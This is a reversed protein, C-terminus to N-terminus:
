VYAKDLCFMTCLFIFETSESLPSFYNLSALIDLRFFIPSWSLSFTKPYTNPTDPGTTVASFIDPDAIYSSTLTPCSSSTPSIMLSSPSM